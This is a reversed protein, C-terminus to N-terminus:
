NNERSVNSIEIYIILFFFFSSIEPIHRGDEVFFCSSEACARVRFVFELVRGPLSFIPKTLPPSLRAPPTPSHCSRPIFQAAETGNAPHIKFGLPATPSPKLKHFLSLFSCAGRQLGLDLPCRAFRGLRNVVEVV